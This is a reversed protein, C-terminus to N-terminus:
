ANLSLHLNVYCVFYFCYQSVGLRGQPKKMVAEDTIRYHAIDEWLQDCIFLINSLLTSAVSIYVYSHRQLKKRYLTAALIVVLNVIGALIPIPLLLLYGRRDPNATCNESVEM